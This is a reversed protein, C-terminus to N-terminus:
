IPLMGPIRVDQIYVLEGTTKPPLDFRPVPKGVIQYDKPDKAKVDQALKLDSAHRSDTCGPYLGIRRDDKAAFRLATRAQRSDSLGESRKSERRSRAESRFCAPFGYM